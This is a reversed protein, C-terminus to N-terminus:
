KNGELRTIEWGPTEPIKHIMKLSCFPKSVVKFCQLWTQNIKETKDKNTTAVAIMIENKEEKIQQTVM